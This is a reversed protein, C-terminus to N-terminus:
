KKLYFPITPVTIRNAVNQWLWGAKYFYQGNDIYRIKYELWTIERLRNTQREDNDILEKRMLVKVLYNASSKSKFNFHYGIRRRSIAFTAPLLASKTNQTKNKREEKSLKNYEIQAGINHFIAGKLWYKLYKYNSSNTIYCKTYGKNDFCIPYKEKLEAFVKKPSKFRIHKTEIWLWGKHICNNLLIRFQSQSLNFKTCLKHLISKYNHICGEHSVNRIAMYFAFDATEDRETGAFYVLSKPIKM